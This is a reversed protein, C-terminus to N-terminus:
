AGGGTAYTLEILTKEQTKKAVKKQAFRLDVKDETDDQLAGCYRLADTLFKTGGALNDIDLLRQRYSTYSLVIRGASASKGKRAALPGDCLAREPQTDQLQTNVNAEITSQSAYPFLQKIREPIM